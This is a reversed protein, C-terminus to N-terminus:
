LARFKDPSCLKKDTDFIFIHSHVCDPSVKSRYLCKGSERIDCKIHTDLMSCLLQVEKEQDLTATDKENSKLKPLRELLLSPRMLPLYPRLESLMATWNRINYLIKYQLPHLAVSPQLILRTDLSVKNVVTLLLLLEEDSYARPCLTMCYSLYKLMNTYNHEPFSAQDRNITGESRIIDDVQQETNIEEPKEYEAIKLLDERCATLLQEEIERARKLSATIDM